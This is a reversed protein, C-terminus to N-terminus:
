SEAAEPEGHTIFIQKPPSEFGRLSNLIEEYDTVTFTAGLFTLKM